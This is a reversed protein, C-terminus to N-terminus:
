KNWSGKVTTSAVEGGIKTQARLGDETEFPLVRMEYRLNTRKKARAIERKRREARTHSMKM